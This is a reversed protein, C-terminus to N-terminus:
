AASEETDAVQSKVLLGNAYSEAVNAHVHDHHWGCLTVLGDLAHPDVGKRRRMHHVVPGPPFSQCPSDLGFKHAQCRGGDRVLAVNRQVNWDHDIKRASM